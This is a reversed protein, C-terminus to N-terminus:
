EEIELLIDQVRRSIGSGEKMLERELGHLLHPMALLANERRAAFVASLVAYKIQAGTIELNEALRGIEPGLKQVQEEGALEGVLRTWIQLRQGADPRPFDLVYRLRRIFGSDINAKKNSALLAVGPYNEIAQLLYNTDTNAFRDHADKIETRKGFLADAEDFLLLANMRAARSLIRELNKSTEGVYKSVVSSLDIRFLDLGLNAAIVQAAMTKGTGPQGTFLAMLGRGQPFLRRMEHREWLVSREKAEYLFDELNKRLWQPIVLDDWNFPCELLQALSTLRHRATERLLNSAENVSDTSKQAITVIQGVNVQHRRVLQEFEQQPWANSVPVLRKWLQRREDISIAPMEISYDVIGPVPPVSQCDEVIVFQVYFDPVKQPWERNVLCEGCWALACRDLYAQRQAHIFVRQWEHEAIGDADIVLLPMNLGESICAALTRRGSGPTGTIHVRVRQPSDQKVMKAIFDATEKVPWNDLPAKPLWMSARGVLLNDLDNIGLLWNRIYPDCEFLIPEGQAVEKEVILDWVKLPSESSLLLCPGHGFLRAVLEETVYGRGAHDQLYAYVRTLNPDVAAALCAQFLDSEEKNLGFIRHLITFRSQNDEAMSQEIEALERNWQQVTEDTALWQAESEPADYNNLYNDIETHPNFQKKSSIGAATWLKQLWAKRRHALLRVRHLVRDLFSDMQMEPQEIDNYYTEQQTFVSMTSNDM